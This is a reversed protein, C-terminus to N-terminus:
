SQSAKWLRDIRLGPCLMVPSAGFCQIRRGERAYAVGFMWASFFPPSLDLVAPTLDSNCGIAPVILHAASSTQRWRVVHVIGKVVMLSLSPLSTRGTTPCYRAASASATACIGAM